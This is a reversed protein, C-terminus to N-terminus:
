MRLSDLVSDIDGNLCVSQDAIEDPVYAEGQNLCVYTAKPFAKTMRWFPYKIIGPTNYGVGLELFLINQYKHEQIFAEYREAAAHWGTDEVFTNDARLNMSMPKGCKPCYPILYSPIRQKLQIK